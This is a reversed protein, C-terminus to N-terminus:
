HKYVGKLFNYLGCSQKLQPQTEKWTEPIDLDYKRFCCKPKYSICSCYLVNCSNSPM